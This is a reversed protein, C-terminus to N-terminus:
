HSALPLTRGLLAQQLEAFLALASPFRDQPRKAVLKALVPQLV